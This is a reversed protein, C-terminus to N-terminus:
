RMFLESSKIIDGSTSTCTKPVIQSFFYESIYDISSVKLLYELKETMLQMIKPESCKQLLDFIIKTLINIM